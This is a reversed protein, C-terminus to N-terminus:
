NTPGLMIRPPQFSSITLGPCATYAQTNDFRSLADAIDNDVGSIHIVRLSIDFKILLSITFKLLNNYPPLSRLSHFIDVTNSSDSYILLRAPISPLRTVADVVSVIALAEFYFITDKPPTTLLLCQFGERLHQLFFGIGSM